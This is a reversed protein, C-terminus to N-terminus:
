DAVSALFKPAPFDGRLKEFASAISVLLAESKPRGTFAIGIPLADELAAPVAISPYGSIAAASSSGVGFRDGKALDTRQARGNVPAVLADLRADEFVQVLLTKVKTKSGAIAAAYDPSSLGATRAAAEVLLDQGFYPMVKDAHENDFRIIDELSNPGDTVGALYRDIGDRFEYLLVELEAKQIDSDMGLRVPDILEAGATRLLALAADFAKGVTPDGDAGDYDRVVGLRLGALSSRAANAPVTAAADGSMARLLLAADEVTRALPGATDQSAAIPIIGRQSILGLTPKIGVVGNIGAPCVISGDTETGVALPVLRAAVAVASGSSSGCPNRDLVYPNRTLGGLSSWGSTSKSGRFNAWESLNAKGLIVAGAHRLSAVLPADASAHHHALALSGASTALRDATDINAKLLVPVGHLPGVVGNQRVRADLARAVGIADPNLEIVANLKPGAGDLAAIRNLYAKVTREATLDGAAIRDRLGVATLAIIDADRWEAARLSTACLLLALPGAALTRARSRRRVPAANPRKMSAADYAPM